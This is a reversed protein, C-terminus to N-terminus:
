ATTPRRGVRDLERLGPTSEIVSTFSVKESALTLVTLTALRLALRANSPASATAVTGLVAGLANAGADGLMTRESLDSPLAALACGALTAALRSADQSGRGDLLALALAVKAARGPRLDFLNVLNATAAIVGGSLVLGSGRRGALAAAALGTAGIGAIKVAGSTLEGRRLAGLHGRFGRNDGSGVLDDYAGLGGAGLAATAAALRIPPTLGSGAIAAVTLGVAV